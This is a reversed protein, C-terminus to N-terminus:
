ALPSFFGEPHASVSLQAAEFSLTRVFSHDEVSDYRMILLLISICEFDFSVDTTCSGSGNLVVSILLIFM